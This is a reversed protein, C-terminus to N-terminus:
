TIPLQSSGNPVYKHITKFIFEKIRFFWIYNLNFIGQRFNKPDSM